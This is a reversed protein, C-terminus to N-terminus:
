EIADLAQARMSAAAGSFPASGYQEGDYEAIPECIPGLPGERYRRVTEADVPLAFKRTLQDLRIGGMAIRRHASRARSLADRLRTLEETSVARGPGVVAYLEIWAALEDATAQDIIRVFQYAGSLNDLTERRMHSAIDASVTSDWLGTSWTRYLPTGITGTPPLRGSAEAGNIIAGIADLKTEVCRDARERELGQGVIEGLEEGLADNAQAVEIRWGIEAALAGLALAILVGLVISAIERLFKRRWWRSRWWRRAEAM